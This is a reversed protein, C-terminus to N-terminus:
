EEEDTTIDHKLIRNAKRRPCPARENERVYFKRLLLVSDKRWAKLVRVEAKPVYEPMMEQHASAVSGCGGFKENMAATYVTTIGAQRLASICMICPEVTVLLIMDNTKNLLGKLRLEQLAEMEAHRTADRGENTRNRGAAHVTGDNKDIVVCGIPVEAAELAENALRFAEKMAENLRVEM